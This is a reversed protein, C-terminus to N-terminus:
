AIKLLRAVKRKVGLPILYHLILMKSIGYLNYFNLGDKKLNIKKIKIDLDYMKDMIQMSRREDRLRWYVLEKPINDLIKLISEAENLCVAVVSIKKKM